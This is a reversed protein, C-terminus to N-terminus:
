EHGRAKAKVFHRWHRNKPILLVRGEYRAINHRRWARLEICLIDDLDGLFPIFVSDEEGPFVAFCAILRGDVMKAGLVAAHFHKATFDFYRSRFENLVGRSGMWPCGNAPRGAAVAISSGKRGM